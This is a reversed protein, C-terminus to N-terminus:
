SGVLLIFVGQGWVVDQVTDDLGVNLFVPTVLIDHAHTVVGLHNTLDHGGHIPVFIFPTLGWGTHLDGGLGESFVAPQGNDVPVSLELLM